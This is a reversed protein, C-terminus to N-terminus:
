ETNMTKPHNQQKEMTQINIHISNKETKKNDGRERQGGREGKGQRACRASIAPIIFCVLLAFVCLVVIVLGLVYLM